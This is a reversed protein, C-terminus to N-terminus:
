GEVARSRLATVITGPDNSDVLDIGLALCRPLADLEITGGAVLLGAGHLRAVAEVDLWEWPVNVGTAQAERAAALLDPGPEDRDVILIRAAAPALAAAERLEIAEFSCISLRTAIHSVSIMRALRAGSGAGKAELTAGTVPLTELWALVERVRPIRESAFRPDFWAGADLRELEAASKADMRGHGDTTRELTEDHLVMAEGDLSLQVDLELYDAGAATAMVFSAMTNEPALASAGRHGGIRLGSGPVDWAM